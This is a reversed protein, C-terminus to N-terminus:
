NSDPDNGGVIKKLMNNIKEGIISDAHELIEKVFELIDRDGAWHREVIKPDSNAIISNIVHISLIVDDIYGVPGILGEPILDAPSIFYAIVACLKAKEKVSVDKDFSLKTLLHLLDPALMLYDSYKSKKGPKEIYRKIKKRLYKYFDSEKDPKM